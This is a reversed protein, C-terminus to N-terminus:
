MAEKQREKALQLGKQVFDTEYEKRIIWAYRNEPEIFKTEEFHILELAEDNGKYFDKMFGLVDLAARVVSLSEFSPLTIKVTKLDYHAANKFNQIAQIQDKSTLGNFETSALWVLFLQVFKLDKINLGEKCLPNLDISRLEIHNIGEKKLTELSNVGRPKLRVPYYLESAQAILKDDVYQQISNAYNIVNSYDFIPSFTNWYGLESCRTSAMGNFISQGFVGKEQYSSDLISSAACIPTLIWGFAVVKQALDLYVKNKYEFFSIESNFKYDEELLADSFSYNIHIGSLSMKYRGYRNSLYHRYDEKDKANEFIAVPIDKESRIYPPNSFPWLYEGKAELTKLIFKTHEYLEEIAKEASSCVNTNIECQCEAFDKVINKHGVFPDISHALYGQHDIRLSEKELGFNGTLLLDKVSTQEIHFM